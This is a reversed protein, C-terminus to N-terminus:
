KSVPLLGQSLDRGDKALGQLIIRFKTGAEEAFIGLNAFQGVVASSEEVSLGFTKAESAVKSLAVAAQNFNTNASRQTQSLVDLIREIDTAQLGFASMINTANNTVDALSTM